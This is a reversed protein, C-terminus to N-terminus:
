ITSLGYRTCLSNYNQKVQSLTLAANYMKIAGFYGTFFYMGGSGLYGQWDNIGFTLWNVSNASRASTIQGQQVGNIYLTLLSGDFTSVVNYWKNVVLAATSSNYGNAYGYHGAHIYSGVIATQAACWGTPGVSAQGNEMILCMDQSLSTPCIWIDSTYAGVLLSGFGPSYYAFNYNSGTFNVVTYGNVTTTPFNVITSPTGSWSSSTGVYSTHNYKNPSSDTWTSGSIGTAADLNLQLGTTIIPITPANGLAKVDMQGNVTRFFFSM